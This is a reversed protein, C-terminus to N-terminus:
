AFTGSIAACLESIDMDEPSEIGVMSAQHNLKFRNAEVTAIGKGKKVSENWIPGFSFRVGNTAAMKIRVGKPSSKIKFVKELPPATIQKVLAIMAMNGEANIEAEAALVLEQFNKSKPTIDAPLKRAIRNLITQIVVDKENNNLNIADAINQLM